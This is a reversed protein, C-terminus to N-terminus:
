EDIEPRVASSADHGHGVGTRLDVHDPVPDIASLDHRLYAVEGERGVEQFGALKFTLYMPRNRKTRIFNATVNKKGARAACELIHSLLVKGVGRSMVRCSMLLLRLMWVESSLEVLAIGIKGYNGYRDELGAVLVLHDPSRLLRELENTSYTIGTSNLQSTRVTLEHVRTLDSARAETVTFVMKLSRLFEATTMERAARQRRIEAQYDARRRRSDETLFRPQMEQLGPLSAAAAADICLVGPLRTAVEDREFPDDDVFALSDVAINLAESVGQLSESKPGWNIQPYLFYQDLNFESLKDMASEFDNRSAISHLIGREDLARIVEVVEARLSVENDELLVGDWLTNDLDWVVCKITERGNDAAEKPRGSKM